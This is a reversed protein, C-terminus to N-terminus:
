AVAEQVIQIGASAGLRSAGAGIMALATQLNRIGGAAKIKIEPGVARYMLDVDEVTAGGPGYGTSTKVFDAGAAQSILCAIIKEQRALSAMELIVKLLADRTHCVQVLALIENYVQGYAQGKLAGVNIVMDIETAGADICALTEFLKVTPPTAGFPFGVVSCVRVPSGALIETCLPVNFPNVCVGAFNYQLAEQCLKKIQAATADPKLLTHDIWTAIKAGHPPKLTAPAAPLDHDYKAALDILEGLSPM